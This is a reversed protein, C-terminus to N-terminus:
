KIARLRAKSEHWEPRDGIAEEIIDEMFDWSGLCNDEHMATQCMMMMAMVDNADYPRDLVRKIAEIMQRKANSRTSM